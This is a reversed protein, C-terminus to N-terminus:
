LRNWNLPSGAGCDVRSGIAGFESAGRCRRRMYAQWGVHHNDFAYQSWAYVRKGQADLCIWEPHERRWPTFDPPGHPVLDFMLRM